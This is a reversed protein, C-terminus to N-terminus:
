MVRHSTLSIIVHTQLATYLESLSIPTPAAGLSQFTDVRIKGPSVRIKL